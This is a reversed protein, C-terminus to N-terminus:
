LNITVGFNFSHGRPILGTDIGQYLVGNHSSMEPDTGLYKTITFVNNAEGWVKLGLLWSNSYPIKYTLRINKLKLYSGDEIWRDSMRENNRWNETNPYCARPMDTVQGEHTWRRLAATTQNYTTNLGEIKSRQYNYVYNGLSYKFNVDLRLNKWTLSSFINGYIDPHPNGIVVKDADDIVGDGNQDVFRVDGAQFNATKKGEDAIGTPYKLYDAHDKGAVRAEADSAIIGNTQWGYFSGVSYGVATLINDTGYVSQTQGHIIRQNGGNFDTLIMYYDPSDPLDTIKNKYRGLTAGLEWKWDKKNIIAANVNFEVGRNKLQGENTWYQTMGSVYSLGRLNLLNDTKHWYFEIGAQIRNNAFSGQLAVNWKTTTEWQIGSNAINKLYLGVTNHTVQQSEWYTRAAFYDLDDNGSMDFGATLKLYNIGKGTNFWKENSIVWGLQLSPFIGWSVGFAKIGSKTNEGFRSAAQASVTFNAFYRNKYNYGANLYYTMDTWSDNTGGYHIYDMNENIYPLKDNENNYGSLSNYSFTYKNYRWGAFIDVTHAGYNKAWEFRLDNNITTEKSFLTKQMSDIDGLDTLYYKTTGNVPLFYRENNRTMQFNFRDSISFTKTVEWKPSVNLNIVTNQAYNKERGQGNQLIWYPNRLSENIRTSGIRNNFQFPNVIYNGGTSAYKGAYDSSLQLRNSPIETDQLTEDYYYAYKSIFPAQVVGLVNPSGINQLSYDESWGQDFLDYSVQNYSIDLGTTVKEFVKIDTNFRLNLRNMGTGKANANSTAYGLSLAYMGVDDGGEVSLKYNQTAATRYLDDQWDQNNSFIKRYYNSPSKDLFKFDSLKSDRLNDLTSIVDSLYSTYQDGNLMSLKKPMLEVGAYIRLNIKTAMSKGRKTTIIIVGNAGKAGYLATGNKLVQITEINEPDIGALLNNYFGEHVSIRDYQPDIINGDLIIMPQVNANISNVGRITMFNGIGPTGNRLVTHVDGALKREIDEDVSISSTESLTVTKQSNITTGETYYADFNTDILRVDAEGNKVACQLPNYGEAYVYVADSFVPIDLTYTGNEETLTSYRELGLAQVRVGGMPEGTADDVVTGKVTKLEYQKEPKKVKKRVVVEEEGDTSEVEDQAYVCPISISSLLLFCLGAKLTKHM